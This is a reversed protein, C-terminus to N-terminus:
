IGRKIKRKKSDEHVEQSTVAVESDGVRMGKRVDVRAGMAGVRVNWVGSPTTRACVGRGVGVGKVYVTWRPSVILLMANFCFTDISSKSAAFGSIEGFAIDTPCIILM